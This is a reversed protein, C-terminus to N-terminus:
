NIDIEVYNEKINKIEKDGIKEMELAEINFDSTKFLKGLSKKFTTLYSDIRRTLREFAYEPKINKSLIIEARLTKEYAENYYAISFRTPQEKIIEPEFERKQAIQEKIIRKNAYYRKLSISIKKRRYYEKRNSFYLKKYKPQRQKVM